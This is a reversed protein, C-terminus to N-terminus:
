VLRVGYDGLRGHGYLICRGAQGTLYVRVVGTVIRYCVQRLAHVIKRHACGAESRERLLADVNKDVVDGADIEAQLHAGYRFGDRHLGAGGQKLGRLRIDIHVQFRAGDSVQGEGAVAVKLAENVQNWAGRGPPKLVGDDIRGLAVECEVEVALIAAVIVSSHVAGGINQDGHSVVHRVDRRHFANLFDVNGGIVELRFLAHGTAGGDSHRRFGARVLEM